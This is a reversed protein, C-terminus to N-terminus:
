LRVVEAIAVPEEEEEELERFLGWHTATVVTLQNAWKSSASLTYRSWLEVAFSPINELM